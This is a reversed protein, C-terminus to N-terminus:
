GPSLLFDALPGYDYFVPIDPNEQVIRAPPQFLAGRDAARIMSLDNYSDGSAAVELNMSKFGLVAQRKGDPQRLSFDAILGDSNLVLTNCLLTPWALKKMLPKAFQEFTDSLLTVQVAARLQDLFALAGDLPEMSAIVAQIDTLKLGHQKLIAIRYNMLKRYDPEDRTTRELEVIGTKQAVSIWIEPILVGEVDLCIM